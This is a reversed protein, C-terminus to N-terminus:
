LVEWSCSLALSSPAFSADPTSCHLLTPIGPDNLPLLHGLRTNRGWPTQFYRQLGLPPSPLQLGWFHLSKQQLFFLLRNQWGNSFILHPANVDLFSLPSSNNLSINIGVYDSYPDLFSLCSTSLKSFLGQRVFIITGGSAHTADRSLIGSRSHTRDSRM